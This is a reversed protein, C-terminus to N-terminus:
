LMPIVMRHVTKATEEIEKLLCELFPPILSMSKEVSQSVFSCYTCRSPCFPIGVYLCIHNKDLAGATELGAKATKLCLGARDRSVDYEKIFRSVAKKESMGSELYSSVIKGPRIGTLAGWVPKKGTINIAARYFSLKIIRQLLRDEVLSGTLCSISVRALGKSHVGDKVIRCSATIYERGRSLIVHASSPKDMLADSDYSDYVPREEPFMMLMIQEVAYRYDHNVLYLNM